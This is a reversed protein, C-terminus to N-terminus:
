SLAMQFKYAEIAATTKSDINTIQTVSKETEDEESSSAAEAAARRALETNLDQQTITGAEVLEKLQSETLTSLNESSSTSSETTSTPKGAPKGAPKETKVGDVGASTEEADESQSTTAVNGSTTAVSDSTSESSNDSSSESSQAQSELEKAEKSKALGESSLQLSAAAEEKEKAQSPISLKGSTIATSYNSTIASANISLSMNREEKTRLIM